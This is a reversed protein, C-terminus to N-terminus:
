ISALDRDMSFLYTKISDIDNRDNDFASQSACGSLCVLIMLAMAHMYKMYNIRREGYLWWACIDRTFETSLCRSNCGSVAVVFTCITSIGSKCKVFVSWEM